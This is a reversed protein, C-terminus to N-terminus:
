VNRTMRSIKNLLRDTKANQLTTKTNQIAKRGAKRKSLTLKNGVRVKRFQKKTPESFPTYDAQNGSRYAAVGGAAGAALGVGMAAGALIKKNKKSIKLAGGRKKNHRKSRRM